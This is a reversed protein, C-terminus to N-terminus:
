HRHKSVSIMLLMTVRLCLLAHVLLYSSGQWTRSRVVMRTRSSTHTEVFLSNMHVVASVPTQDGNRVTCAHRSCQHTDPQHAPLGICLIRQLLIICLIRPEHLCLARVPTTISPAHPSSHHHHRHLHTSTSSRLLPDRMPCCPSPSQIWCPGAASTPAPLDVSSFSAM